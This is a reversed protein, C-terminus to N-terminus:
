PCSAPDPIECWGGVCVGPELCQPGTNANCPRKEPVPSMCTDHVCSGGGECYVDGGCTEGEEALTLGTCTGGECTTALKNNCVGGELCPEGENPSMACTGGVCLLTGACPTAAGCTEGVGAAQVCAYGICTTGPPCEMALRCGDGEALGAQCIGCVGDTELFCAKSACQYGHVCGAGEELTGEPANCLPDDRRAQWAECSMSAFSSACSGIAKPGLKAGPLGGVYECWAALRDQCSAQNGYDYAFRASACRNIADCRASAYDACAQDIPGTDAEESSEESGCAGFWVPLTM